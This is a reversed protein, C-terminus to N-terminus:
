KCSLSLAHISGPEPQCDLFIMRSTEVELECKRGLIEACSVVEVLQYPIWFNVQASLELNTQLSVITEKTSM